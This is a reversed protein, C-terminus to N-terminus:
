RDQKEQSIFFGTCKVGMGLHCSCLLPRGKGQGVRNTRAEAPGKQERLTLENAMPLM